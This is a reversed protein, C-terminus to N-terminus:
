RKNRPSIKNNLIDYENKNKSENPFNIKYNVYNSNNRDYNFYFDDNARNKLEIFKIEIRDDKRIRALTELSIQFLAKDNFSNLETNVLGLSSAAAYDIFYKDGEVYVRLIQKNTQYYGYQPGEYSREEKSQTLDINPNYIKVNEKM